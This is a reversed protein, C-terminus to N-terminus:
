DKGYSKKNRKAKKVCKEPDTLPSPNVPFSSGSVLITIEGKITKDEFSGIIDSTKGRVIEEFMKTLERAVVIQRDGLVRLLDQLTSLLRRPSEYFVLTREQDQLSLFLSRRKGTKRPLFGEFIFSHTPLGSGSLATIVASPGPIPTIQITNEIALKTLRYGPDSIAPTGAESILALDKGERLQALLSQTKRFSTHEFYSTVPTTIQYHTLLKKARRTDEAAILDVKKLTNIARLTIDELNGLPTAVLYLIGSTTESYNKMNTSLLEM